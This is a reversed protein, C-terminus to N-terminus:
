KYVANLVYAELKKLLLESEEVYVQTQTTKKTDAFHLIVQIAGPFDRLIRSVNKNHRTDALNLWLKRQTDEVEIIRDAIM